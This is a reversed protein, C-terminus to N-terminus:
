RSLAVEITHLVRERGIFNSFVLRVPGALKHYCIYGLHTNRLLGDLGRPDEGGDRLYDDNRRSIGLLIILKVRVRDRGGNFTPPDGM